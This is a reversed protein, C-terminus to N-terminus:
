QIQYIMFALLMLISLITSLNNNGHVYNYEFNYGQNKLTNFTENEVKWRSRGGIM